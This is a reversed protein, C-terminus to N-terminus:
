YGRKIKLELNTIKKRAENANFDFAISSRYYRIAEDLKEMRELSYAINWRVRGANLKGYENQIRSLEMEAKGKMDMLNEYEEYKEFVEEKLLLSKLSRITENLEKLEKQKASIQSAVMEQYKITELYYRVADEFVLEHLAIDAKYEYSKSKKFIENEPLLTLARDLSQLALPYNGTRYYAIHGLAFHIKGDDPTAALYRIYYKETELFRGIDENLNGLMLYIEPSVPSDSGRVYRELHYIARKKKDTRYLAKGLELSYAYNEPNLSVATELAEIYAPFHNDKIFLRAMEFYIVDDKKPEVLKYRLAQTYHGLSNFYDSLHGHCRAAYLHLQSLRPNDEIFFHEAKRNRFVMRLDIERISERTTIFGTPIRKDEVRGAYFENLERSIIELSKRYDGMQYTRLFDEQAIATLPMLSPLCLFFAALTVIRIMYRVVHMTASADTNATFAFTFSTSKFPM